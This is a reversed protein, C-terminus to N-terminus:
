SIETQGAIGDLTVILHNLVDRGIIAEKSNIGIARIGPIKYMGIQVEIRYLNVTQRHGGADIMNRTELYSAGIRRLVNTPFISCDAGSDLLAAISIEKARRLIVDVVPAAPYHSTDYPFTIAM